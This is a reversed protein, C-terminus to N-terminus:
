KNTKTKIHDCLSELEEYTDGYLDGKWVDNVRLECHFGDFETETIETTTIEARINM